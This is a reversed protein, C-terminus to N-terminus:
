LSAYYFVTSISNVVIGAAWGIWYSIKSESSKNKNVAVVFFGVPCCCFGWAFAGWDMQDISFGGSGEDGALSLFKVAEPKEAILESYSLNQDFAKVTSEMAQLDAIAQSDFTADKEFDASSLAFSTNSSILTLLTIFLLIKKM